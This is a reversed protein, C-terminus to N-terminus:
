SFVSKDLSLEGALLVIGFRRGACRHFGLKRGCDLAQHFQNAILLHHFLM